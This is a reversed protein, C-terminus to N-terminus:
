SKGNLQKYKKLEETLHNISDMLENIQFDKAKIIESARDLEAVIKQYREVWDDVLKQYYDANKVANDIEQSKAEALSKRRAFFWTVLSAFFGTVITILAEIM